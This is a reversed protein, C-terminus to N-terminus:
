GLVVGCRERASAPGDLKRGTGSPILPAGLGITHYAAVFRHCCHVCGDHAALRPSDNQPRRPGSIASCRQASRDHSFRLGSPQWLPSCRRQQILPPSFCTRSSWCPQPPMFTSTSFIRCGHRDPQCIVSTTAHQDGEKRKGHRTVAAGDREAKMRLKGPSTASSQPDMRSSISSSILLSFAFAEDRNKRENGTCRCTKAECWHRLTTQVTQSIQRHGRIDGPPEKIRHGAM